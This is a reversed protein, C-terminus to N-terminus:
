GRRGRRTAWPGRGSMDLLAVLTGGALAGLAFWFLGM